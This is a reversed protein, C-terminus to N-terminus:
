HNTHIRNKVIPPPIARIAHPVSIFKGGCIFNLSNQTLPLAQEFNSDFIWIGTITVAHECNGDKGQLVFVTPFEADAQNNNHKLIDYQKNKFRRVQPQKGIFKQVTERLLKLNM